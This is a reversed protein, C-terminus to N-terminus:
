TIETIEELFLELGAEKFLETDGGYQDSFDAFINALKSFLDQCKPFLHQKYQLASVSLNKRLQLFKTHKVQELEDITIMFSEGLYGSFKILGEQLAM